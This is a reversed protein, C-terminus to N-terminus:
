KCKPFEVEDRVRRRAPSPFKFGEGSLLPHPSTLSQL